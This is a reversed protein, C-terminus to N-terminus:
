TYQLYIDGDSGGSPAATGKTVNHQGYIKNVGYTNHAVQIMDSKAVTAPDPMRIDTLAAANSQNRMYLVKGAMWLQSMYSAESSEVRSVFSAYSTSSLTGTLTGGTLPLFLSALLTKLNAFTIKKTANSAVSDSLPITDADALTTKASTNKILDEKASVAIQRNTIEATLSTNLVSINDAEAKIKTDIIDMNANQIEVNYYEEATPKTLGYNTTKTPM